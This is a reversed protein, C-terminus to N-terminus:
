TRALLEWGVDLMVAIAKEFVSHQNLQSNSTGFGIRINQGSTACFPTINQAM